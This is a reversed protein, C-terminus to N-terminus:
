MWTPNEKLKAIATDIHHVSSDRYNKITAQETSTNSFIEDLICISKVEESEYIASDVLVIDAYFKEANYPKETSGIQKTLEILLNYRDSGFFANILYLRMYVSIGIAPTIDSIFMLIPKLVPYQFHQVRCHKM